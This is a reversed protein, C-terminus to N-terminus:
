KLMEEYNKDDTYWDDLEFLKCEAACGLGDWTRIRDGDCFESQPNSCEAIGDHTNIFKCWHCHRGNKDGLMNEALKSWKPSIKNM